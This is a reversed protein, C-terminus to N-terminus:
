FSLKLQDEKCQSTGACYSGEKNQLSQDSLIKLMHHGEPLKYIDENHMLTGAGKRLYQGFKSGQDNWQADDAM